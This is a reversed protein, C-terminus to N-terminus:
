QIANYFARTIVQGATFCVKTADHLHRRAMPFCTELQVPFRSHLLRVVEVFDQDGSLLIAVDYRQDFAGVILDEVIKTDVGKEVPPVSPWTSLYRLPSTFLRVPFPLHQVARLFRGQAAAGNADRNPDIAGIYYNLRVLTRNALIRNVLKGVDYQGKGFQQRLGNYFNSGDLFIEVRM